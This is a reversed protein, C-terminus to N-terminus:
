GCSVENETVPAGGRPAYTIRSAPWGPLYAEAQERTATRRADGSEPDFVEWPEPDPAGGPDAPRDVPIVDIIQTPAWANSVEVGHWTRGTWELLVRTGNRDDPWAVARTGWAWQGPEFPVADIAEQRAKERDDQSVEVV